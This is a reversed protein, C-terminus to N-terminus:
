SLKTHFLFNDIVKIKSPWFMLAHWQKFSLMGLDRNTISYYRSPFVWEEKLSPVCVCRNQKPWEREYQEVWSITPTSGCLSGGRLARVQEELKGDMRQSATAKSTCSCSPRLACISSSICWLEAFPLPKDQVIARSHFDRIIFSLNLWGCSM